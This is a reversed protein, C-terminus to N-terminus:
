GETSRAVMIAVAIDAKSYSTKLEVKEDGAIKVLDDKGILRDDADDPKAADILDEPIDGAAFRAQAAELVKAAAETAERAKRQEDTENAAHKAAEEAAVEDAKRQEEAAEELALREATAAIIEKSIIGGPDEDKGEKALAEARLRHNHPYDGELAIGTEKEVAPPQTTEAEAQKDDM